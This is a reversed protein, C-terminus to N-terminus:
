RGGGLFPKNLCPFITGASFATDEDYVQEWEQMPVSCIGLGLNCNMNEPMKAFREHRSMEQNDQSVFEINQSGRDFLNHRTMEQINIIKELIKEREKINFNNKNDTRSM